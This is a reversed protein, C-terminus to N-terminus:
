IEFTSNRFNSLQDHTLLNQHKITVRIRSDMTMNVVIKVYNFSGQINPNPFQIKRSRKSPVPSRIILIPGPDMPFDIPDSLYSINRYPTQEIIGPNNGGTIPIPIVVIAHAFHHQIINEQEM